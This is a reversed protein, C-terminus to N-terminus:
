YFANTPEFSSVMFEAGASNVSAASVAAPAKAWILWGGTPSLVVFIESCTQAMM